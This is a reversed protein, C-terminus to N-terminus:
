SLFERLYEDRSGLLAGPSGEFVLRGDRLM